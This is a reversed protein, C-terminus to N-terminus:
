FGRGLWVWEMTAKILMAQAVPDCPPIANVDIADRIASEFYRREAFDIAALKARVAEEAGASSFSGDPNRKM